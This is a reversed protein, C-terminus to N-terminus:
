GLGLLARGRAHNRRERPCPRAHRRQPDVARRREGQGEGPRARASHPRRRRRRDVYTAATAGAIPVCLRGNPNCRQWRTPSRPPCGTGPATPSASRRARSPRVRSRPNRLRYSPPAPERSRASSARTPRPLARPTPPMSPSGLTQGVDKAAVPTRRSRPATSQSATRVWRTAGTGSIRRPRDRRSGSWIGTSGTLQKGQKAMGTVTPLGGSSPGTAQAIVAAPTAVSSRTRRHPARPERPRRCAPRARHRRRDRHLHERHSRSAAQVTAWERQLAAVPVRDHDSDPELRRGLGPADSGDEPAGVVTPQVPQSSSPKRDASRGGVLSAYAKRTGTAKDTARVGFGVTQGVDEAVLTYTRGTAGSISKCRAGATSAATGSTPTSSRGPAPGPGWPM